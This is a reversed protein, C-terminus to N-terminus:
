TATLSSVWKLQGLGLGAGKISRVMNDGWRAVWQPRFDTDPSLRGDLILGIDEHFRELAASDTGVFQAAFNCPELLMQEAKGATVIENRSAHPNLAYLLIKHTAGALHIIPKMEPGDGEIERLHVLTYLYSHWLPHAWPAEIVWAELCYPRQEANLNIKWARTHASKLTPEVSIPDLTYYAASHYM